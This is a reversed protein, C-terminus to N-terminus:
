NHAAPVVPSGGGSAGSGGARMIQLGEPTQLWDGIHGRRCLWIVKDGVDVATEDGKSELPEGSIPCVPKVAPQAARLDAAEEKELVVFPEERLALLRKGDALEM